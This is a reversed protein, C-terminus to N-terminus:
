RAGTPLLTKTEINQVYTYGYVRALCRVLHEEAVALLHPVDQQTKCSNTPPSSIGAASGGVGLDDFQMGGKQLEKQISTVEKDPTGCPVIHRYHSVDTTVNLAVGHSSIGNSIRVGVAGLKREGVWVGTKGPVGGRAQIGFCGATQVMADELREVFARAGLGLQRLNVIPYAVLQGPGHYTTEGGRPVSHVEYGNQRLEEPDTHFDQASGRKGVTFVSAHQVVLLTDGITAEKRHQELLAQLEALPLYSSLTRTLSCVRLSKSHPM